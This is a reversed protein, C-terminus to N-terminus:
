SPMVKRFPHVEVEEFVGAKAYPDEALFADLEHREKFDMVLLSGIMSQRDETMLPGVLVVKDRYGELFALHAARNNLRLQLGGQKDKCYVAYM